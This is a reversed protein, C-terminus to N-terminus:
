DMERRSGKGLCERICKELVARIRYLRVRLNNISIGFRQALAKRGEIKDRKDLAYYAMILKRSEADLKGVCRELCEHELESEDETAESATVTLGMAENLPAQANMRRRCEYFLKKAVGYFYHAPDGVYVGDLEHIRVAVRNFVEDALSEADVCGRWTFIKILSQRIEEYRRGAKEPDENFWALLRDFEKKTMAQQKLM